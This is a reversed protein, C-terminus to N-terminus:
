GAFCGFFENRLELDPLPLVEDDVLTSADTLRGTAPGDCSGTGDTSWTLTGTVPYAATEIVEPEGAEIVDDCWQAFLDAGTVLRGM